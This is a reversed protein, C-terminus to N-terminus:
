FGRKARITILQKVLSLVEVVKEYGPISSVVTSGAELYDCAADAAKSRKEDTEPQSNAFMLFRDKLRALMSRKLKGVDGSLENELPPAVLTPAGMPPPPAGPVAALLNNVLQAM